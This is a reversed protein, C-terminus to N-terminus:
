LYSSRGLCRNMKLDRAAQALGCCAVIYLISLLENPLLVTAEDINYVITLVILGLYWDYRGSGDNRLCFWANRVAQFLTALFIVGGVLGLQLFIELLGNHAYGFTWHTANIINGSEGTLGNWFAYFGYGLLPRKVISDMVATWILTRGTLTPDRGFAGLINPLYEACGITILVVAISSLVALAVSLRPELRRSLRLFALFLIFILLVVIATVAHAEIIMVSFLIISAIRSSGFGKASAVLAPSLLFVLAKAASTRDIFIGNWTIPSRPDGYGVGYQPFCIVMILGLFCIAVGAKTVLSMIEETRFRIVLYYAFLTGFVYFTGFLASRLPNQSWAASCLTLLALLTLLKFHRALLAVESLRSKILWAVIVYTIGPIVVYGLFGHERIEASGPLVGGVVGGESQFSFAGHCAFFVFSLAIAWSLRPQISISQPTLINESDIRNLTATPM